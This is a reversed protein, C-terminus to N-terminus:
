NLFDLIHQWTDWKLVDLASGGGVVGYGIMLGCVFFVVMLVLVLACYFLVKLFDNEVFLFTSPAVAEKNKSKFM